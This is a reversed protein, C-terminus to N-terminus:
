AGVDLLSAQTPLNINLFLNGLVSAGADNSIRPGFWRGVVVDDQDTLVSLSEVLGDSAARLLTGELLDCAGVRGVAKTFGLCKVSAEQGASPDNQLVGIPAPSGAGGTAENDYIAVNGAISAPMVLLYQYATMDNDATFPVPVIGDSFYNGM